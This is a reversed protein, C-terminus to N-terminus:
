VHAAVGRGEVEEIRGEELRVVRDALNLSLPSHTILLVTRHALTHQHDAIFSKEGEEDFMATAEDLILIPPDKLLARALALRQRQGGSLRIGHDGVVTSYGEPLAAIFDHAQAARAAAQVDAASADLRGCAINDSISGNFLLVRQSVLGIQRRLNGVDVDAIDIGDLLIRGGSPQMFRMLLHAVTSKGAGNPGTLAVIEGAAIRLDFGALVPRRGPYSFSVQEFTIEGNVLSPLVKASAPSAEAPEALVSDLRELAGRVQRTQGYFDALSSIPRALLAAYLIFSVMEAPTGARSGTGLLWLMTLLGAAALLEVSPGMLAYAAQERKRLEVIQEVRAAYRRSEVAERNFSKIIPLMGLNEEAVAIIDAHAAQLRSSLPRLNRGIVKMVVFFLPLMLVSFVTLWIDIRGMLVLSGVLTLGLPVVGILTGTVYGSLRAVDNTLLAIIEGRRQQNFYALPLAQLHDYLRTRLSALMREATRGLLIANAARLLAQLALLGFLAWLLRTVGTNGGFVGVAFHAALWPLALAVGSQAIMLLSCWALAGRWERAYGLILGRSTGSQAAASM